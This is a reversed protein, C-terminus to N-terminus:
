TAEGTESEMKNIWAKYVDVPSTHLQMEENSMVEQVVPGLLDPLLNNDKRCHPPSPHLSPFPSPPLPSSCLFCHVLYHLSIFPVLLVAVVSCVYSAVKIDCMEPQLWMHVCTFSLSTKKILLYM